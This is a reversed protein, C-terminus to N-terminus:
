SNVGINDRVVIGPVALTDDLDVNAHAKIKKKDVVGKVLLAGNPNVTPDVDYLLVGIAGTFPTAAVKKGDAKMPTGAKVLASETVEFPLATFVDAALIEVTGGIATTKMKM